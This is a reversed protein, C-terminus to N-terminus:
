GCRVPAKTFAAYSTIYDAIESGKAFGDPNCHRFPFDPLLISWNPFQFRLGIWRESHWREAIRHRELVCHPIGRQSLMHSM